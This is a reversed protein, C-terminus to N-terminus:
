EGDNESPEDPQPNYREFIKRLNSNIDDFSHGKIISFGAGRKYANSLEQYVAYAAQEDESLVSMDGEAELIRQQIGFYTYERLQEDLEYKFGHEGAISSVEELLDGLPLMAMSEQVMRLRPASLQGNTLYPVEGYVGSQDWEQQTRDHLEQRLRQAEEGNFVDRYASEASQSGLSGYLHQNKLVHNSGVVERNFRDALNERHGQRIIEERTQENAM